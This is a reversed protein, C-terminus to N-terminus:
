LSKALEKDLQKLLKSDHEMSFLGAEIPDLFVATDPGSEQGFQIRKLPKGSECSNCKVCFETNDESIFVEEKRIEVMNGCHPCTTVWLTPYVPNGSIDNGFGDVDEGDWGVPRAQVITGNIDFDSLAYAPTTM